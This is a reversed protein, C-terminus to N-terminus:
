RPRLGQRAIRHGRRRRGRGDRARRSRAEGLRRHSSEDGRAHVETQSGERPAPAHYRRWTSVGSKRGASVGSPPEAYTSAIHRGPGALRSRRHADPGTPSEPKALNVVFQLSKGGATGTVQWCGPASFTLGSAQFTTAYGNPITVSVPGADGDLRRAHITLDSGVPRVWLVKTRLTGPVPGGGSAWMTRDANAYWDGVFPSANPDSPPREAIPM